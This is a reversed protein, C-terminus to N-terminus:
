NLIWSQEINNINNKKLFPRLILMDFLLKKRQELIKLLNNIRHINDHFKYSRVSIFIKLSKNWKIKDHILKFENEISSLANNLGKLSKIITEPTDQSISIEKVFLELNEVTEKVDTSELLEALDIQTEDNNICNIIGYISKASTSLGTVIKFGLDIGVTSVMYQM